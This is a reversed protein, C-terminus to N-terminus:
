LDRGLYTQIIKDGSSSVINGPIKCTKLVVQDSNLVSRHLISFKSRIDSQNHSSM